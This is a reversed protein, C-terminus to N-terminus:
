EMWRAPLVGGVRAAGDTRKGLLDEFGAAAQAFLRQHELSEGMVVNLMTRHRAHTMAEVKPRWTQVFAGLTRVDDDLIAKFAGPEVKKSIKGVPPVPLSASAKPLAAGAEALADALWTLHTEERAIVYQYTNNFDYHSVVRAGAEHRELLAVRESALDTLLQQLENQVTITDGDTPHTLGEAKGQLHHV